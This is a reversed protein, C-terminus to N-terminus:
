TKLQKMGTLFPKTAGPNGGECFLMETATRISQGVYIYTKVYGSVDEGKSILVNADM